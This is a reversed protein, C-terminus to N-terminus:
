CTSLWLSKWHHCLLHSSISHDFFRMFSMTLSNWLEVDILMHTQFRLLLLVGKSPYFFIFDLFFHQIFKTNSQMLFTENVFVEIKSCHVFLRLSSSNVICCRFLHLFRLFFHNINTPKIERSSCNGYLISHKYDSYRHPLSRCSSDSASFLSAQMQPIWQTSHSPAHFRAFFAYWFAMLWVCREYFDLVATAAAFSTWEM